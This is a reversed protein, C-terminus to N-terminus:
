QTNFQKFYKKMQLIRASNKGFDPVSIKNLRNPNQNPFYFQYNHPADIQLDWFGDEYGTDYKKITKEIMGMLVYQDIEELSRNKASKM